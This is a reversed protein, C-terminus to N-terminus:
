SKRCASPISLKSMNGGCKLKKTQSIPDCWHAFYPPNLAPHPCIHTPPTWRRKQQMSRPSCQASDPGGPKSHMGSPLAESKEACISSCNPFGVLKYSDQPLRGPVSASHPVSTGRSLAMMEERTLYLTPAPFSLNQVVLLLIRGEKM